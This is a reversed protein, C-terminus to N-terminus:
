CEKLIVYCRCFLVQVIVFPLYIQICVESELKTKGLEHEKYYELMEILTEFYEGGVSIGNSVTYIPHHSVFQGSSFSSTFVGFPTIRICRKIDSAKSFIGSLNVM